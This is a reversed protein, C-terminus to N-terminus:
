GLSALVVSVGADGEAFSAVTRRHAIWWKGQDTRSASKSARQPLGHVSGLQQIPQRWMEHM